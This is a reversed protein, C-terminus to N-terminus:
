EFLRWILYSIYRRNGTFLSFLFWLVAIMFVTKLYSESPYRKFAYLWVFIGPNLCLFLFVSPIVPMGPTMLSLAFLVFVAILDIYFWASLKGKLVTDSVTKRGEHHRYHEEAVNRADCDEEHQRRLQKADDLDWASIRREREIERALWDDENYKEFDNKIM